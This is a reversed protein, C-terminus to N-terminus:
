NKEGREHRPIIDLKVELTLSKRPKKAFCPSMALSTTPRRPPMSHSIVLQHQVRNKNQVLLPSPYPSHTTRTKDMLPAPTNFFRNAQM